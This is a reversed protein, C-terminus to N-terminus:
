CPFTPIEVQNEEEQHERLREVLAAIEKVHREMERSIEDMMLLRYETRNETNESM